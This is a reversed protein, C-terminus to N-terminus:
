SIQGGGTVEWRGGEVGAGGSRKRVGGVEWWVMLEAELGRFRYKSAPSKRLGQSIFARRVCLAERQTQCLEQKQSSHLWSSLKRKKKPVSHRHTHTHRKKREQQQM